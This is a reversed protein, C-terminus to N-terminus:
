VAESATYDSGIVTRGLHVVIAIVSGVIGLITVMRALLNLWNGVVQSFDIPFVRYFVVVSVLGAIAMLAQIFSYLRAPRYFALFTNGIIQMIMSLNAAWLINVWSELIVGHSLSRWAPLSNVVVLGIMAGIVAGVFESTRKERM